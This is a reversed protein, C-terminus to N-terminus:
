KYWEINHYILSAVYAFLSYIAIGVLYSVIVAFLLLVHIIDIM